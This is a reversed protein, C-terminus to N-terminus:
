KQIGGRSSEPLQKVQEVNNDLLQHVTTTQLRTSMIEIGGEEIMKSLIPHVVLRYGVDKGCFINHEVVIIHPYMTCNAIPLNYPNGQKQLKEKPIEEASITRMTSLDIFMSTTKSGGDWFNWLRYIEKSDIKVPRRSKASGGFATRIIHAVESFKVELPEKLM